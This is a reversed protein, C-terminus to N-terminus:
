QEWRISDVTFVIPATSGVPVEAAFGFGGLVADYTQGTLDIIYPTPTTTLVVSVEAKATDSYTLGSMGGVVFKVSEGGAAGSAYFTVKTAGPAIRKGPSAGWNNVPYQWYVGGWAFTSPTITFKHCHGTSGPPRSAM